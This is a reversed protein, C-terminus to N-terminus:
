ILLIFIAVGAFAGLSVYLREKEDRQREAAKLAASFRQRYMDCYDMQAQLDGAGLGNCFEHGLACIEGDGEGSLWELEPYKAAMDKFLDISNRRTYRIIGQIEEVCRLSLEIYKIRSRLRNAFFMGCLFAVLSLILIGLLRM